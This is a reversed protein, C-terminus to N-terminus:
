APSAAPSANYGAAFELALRYGTTGLGVISGVALDSLLSRHRFRERRHLNSIHVEVFPIAVAALADRLAVSTHTFGGANIIIFDTGDSRAGQVRDILAGEHNSQFTQVSLGLAAAAQAIDREVEALTRSGYQAPERTGLLNLNPGNVVLVTRAM